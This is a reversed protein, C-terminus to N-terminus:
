YDNESEDVIKIPPGASVAQCFMARRPNRFATIVREPV